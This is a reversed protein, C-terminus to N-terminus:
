ISGVTELFSKNRCQFKAATLAHPIKRCQQGPKRGGPRDVLEVPSKAPRARLRIRSVPSSQLTRDRNQGTGGVRKDTRAERDIWTWLITQRNIQILHRLAYKIKNVRADKKHSKKSFNSWTFFLPQFQATLSSKTFFNVTISNKL